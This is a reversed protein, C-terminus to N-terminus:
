STRRVGDVPREERCNLAALFESTVHRVPAAAALQLAREGARRRAGLDVVAASSTVDVADGAGAPRPM